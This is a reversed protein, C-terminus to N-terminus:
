KWTDDQNEVYVKIRACPNTECSLIKKPFRWKKQQVKQDVAFVFDSDDYDILIVESKEEEAEAILM